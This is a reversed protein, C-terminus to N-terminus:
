WDRIGFDWLIDKLVHEPVMDMEFDALDYDYEMLADELDDLDYGRQRLLSEIDESDVDDNVSSSGMYSCYPCYPEGEDVFSGCQPCIGM